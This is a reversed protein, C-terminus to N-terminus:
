LGEIGESRAKATQIQMGDAYEKQIQMIGANIQEEVVQYDGMKAQKMAWVAAKAIVLPVYKDLLDVKDTAETVMPVAQRYGHFLFNPTTMTTGYWLLINNGHHLWCASNKWQSNGGCAIGSFQSIDRCKKTTGTISNTVAIIKEIYPYTSSDVIGSLTTAESGNIVVLKSTGSAAIITGATLGASAIAPSVGYWPACLQNLLTVVEYVALNLHETISLRPVTEPDLQGTIVQVEDILQGLTFQRGLKTVAM